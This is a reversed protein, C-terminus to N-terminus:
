PQPAPERGRRLTDVGFAPELELELVTVLRSMMRFCGATLLLETIQRPPFHESLRAFTENSAHPTDLTEDAFAIAARQHQDFLDDPANGQQLASIQPDEVGVSAAIAAHQAFAYPAESRQAVRLIAIERIRPDLRTETLVAYILGLAAAGVPPTQALMRFVNGPHTDDPFPSERLMESLQEATGYPLLPM